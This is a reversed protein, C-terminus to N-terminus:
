VAAGPIDTKITFSAGYVKWVVAAYPAAAAPATAGANATVVVVPPNTYPSGFRVLAGGKDVMTATGWSFLTGDAMRIQHDAARTEQMGAITTIGAMVMAAMLPRKMAARRWLSRDRGFSM